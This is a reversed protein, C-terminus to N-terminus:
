KICVYINSVGVTFALSQCNGITDLTKLSLPCSKALCWPWSMPGRHSSHLVLGAGHDSKYNLLISGSPVRYVNYEWWAMDRQTILTRTCRSCHTNQCLSQTDRSDHRKVFHLLLDPSFIQLITLITELVKVSKPWFPMLSYIKTVRDPGNTYFRAPHQGFRSILFRM